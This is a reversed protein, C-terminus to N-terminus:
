LKFKNEFEKIEKRTFEAFETYVSTKVFRPKVVAAGDVGDVAENLQNRRSFWFLSLSSRLQAPIKLCDTPALFRTLIPNDYRGVCGPLIPVKSDIRSSRLLKFIGGRFEFRDAM